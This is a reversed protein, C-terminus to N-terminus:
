KWPGQRAASFFLARLMVGVVLLNVLLVGVSLWTVREYLEYLELPLYIGASVAAFWEAWRQARWLGYAEVFRVAAYVTALAALAWLRAQTLGAAAEFFIRLYRQAPNLHFHEVVQEVLHQIDEHLLTLSGFGAALVLIGKAAEFLAVARITDTDRM